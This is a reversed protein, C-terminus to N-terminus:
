NRLGRALQRTGLRESENGHDSKRGRGGRTMAGYGEAGPFAPVAPTDAAFGNPILVLIGACVLLQCIHLLAPQRFCIRLDTGVLARLSDIFKKKILPYKKM